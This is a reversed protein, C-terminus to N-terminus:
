WGLRTLTKKERGEKYLTAGLIVTYHLNRINALGNEARYDRLETTSKQM